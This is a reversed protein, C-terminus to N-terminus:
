FAEVTVIKELLGALEADEVTMSRGNGAEELEYYIGFIDRISVGREYLEKAMLRTDAKSLEFEEYARKLRQNM